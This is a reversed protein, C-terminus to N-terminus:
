EINSHSACFAVEGSHIPAVPIADGQLSCCSIGPLTMNVLYICTTRPIGLLQCLYSTQALARLCCRQCVVISVFTREGAHHLGDSPTIEFSSCVPKHDSTSVLPVSTLSQQHVRDAWQPMSKWLIRDTYSPIRQLKHKCDPVREMKFTPKFHYKGETFGVFAEGRLQSNKLQDSKMLEDWDEKEVLDLVAAHHAAHGEKSDDFTAGTATLDVRYNLDGMWFVHDFQSVADLLKHGIKKKTERLVEQCNKNRSTLRHSHAALHCSVFALTTTGYDLKVILGGKNGLVGGIGTASKATEVHTICKAPGKVHEDRAHVTLRMQWLTIHGCVDFGGGLRHAIMNDWKNKAEVVAEQEILPMDEQQVASDSEPIPKGESEMQEVAEDYDPADAGKDGPKFKNEQTGVVVLDFDGGNEPLWHALEAEDPEANGVNWTYCLVKIPKDAKGASAM